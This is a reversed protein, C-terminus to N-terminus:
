LSTEFIVYATKWFFLWFPNHPGMEPPVVRSVCRMHVHRSRDITWQSSCNSMPEYRQNLLALGHLRYDEDSIHENQFPM